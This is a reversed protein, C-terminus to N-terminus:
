YKTEITTTTSHNIKDFTVQVEYNEHGIFIENISIDSQIKVVFTKIALSISNEFETIYYDEREDAKMKAIGNLGNIVSDVLKARIIKIDAYGILGKIYGVASKFNMPDHTVIIYDNEITKQAIIHFDNKLKDINDM